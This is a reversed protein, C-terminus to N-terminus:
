LRAIAGVRELIWIKASQQRCAVHFRPLLKSRIVASDLFNPTDRHSSEFLLFLCITSTVLECHVTNSLNSM